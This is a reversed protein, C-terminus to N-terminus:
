PELGKRLTIVEATHLAGIESWSRPRTDNCNDWYGDRNIEEMESKEFIAGGRDTPVVRTPKGTQRDWIAFTTRECTRGGRSFMEGTKTEVIYFRENAKNSARTEAAKATAAIRMEATMLGAM